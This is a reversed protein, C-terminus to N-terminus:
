IVNLFRTETLLSKIGKYKTDDLWIRVFLVHWKVRDFVHRSPLLIPQVHQKMNVNLSILNRNKLCPVVDYSSTM